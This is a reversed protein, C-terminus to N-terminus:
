RIRVSDPVHYDVHSRGCPGIRSRPLVSSGASLAGLVRRAYASFTDASHAILGSLDVTYSAHTFARTNTQDFM